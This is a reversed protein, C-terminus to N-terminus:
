CRSNGGCWRSCRDWRRWNSQLVARGLTGFGGRGWWSWGFELGREWPVQAGMIFIGAGGGLLRPGVIRRLFRRRRWPLVRGDIGVLTRVVHRNRLINLAVRRGFAGRAPRGLHIVNCNRRCLKRRRTVACDRRRLKWRCAITCSRWVACHSDPLSPYRVSFRCEIKCRLLELLHNLFLM